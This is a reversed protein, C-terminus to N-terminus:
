GRAQAALMALTLVIMIGVTFWSIVNYWRSNTYRGMLEKDNILLLVFILVAGGILKGITQPSM